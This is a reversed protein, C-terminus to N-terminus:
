QRALESRRYRQWSEGRHRAHRMPAQPSKLSGTATRIREEEAVADLDAASPLRSDSLRSKLALLANITKPPLTM